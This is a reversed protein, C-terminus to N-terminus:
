LNKFWRRIMPILGEWKSLTRSRLALSFLFTVGTVIGAFVLITMIDDM